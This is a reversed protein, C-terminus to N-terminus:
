GYTQKNKEDWLSRTYKKSPASKRTFFLYPNHKGVLSLLLPFSPFYSDRLSRLIASIRFFYFSQNEQYNLFMLDWSLCGQPPHPEHKCFLVRVSPGEARLKPHFTQRSGPRTNWLLLDWHFMWSIFALSDYSYSIKMISPYKFEKRM